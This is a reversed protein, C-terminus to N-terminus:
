DITVKPGSLDDFYFVDNRQSKPAFLITIQDVEANSVKTGNPITAFLFEVEEWENQKKTFTQYQSHVGDPYAIESAKGLQLEVMTGVPATSYIKMKIKPPVGEYTAYNEVEKLRGKLKLKINDYVEDKSRRYKICFPNSNFEELSPNTATSDLIGNFQSFWFFKETDGSFYNQQAKTMGVLIVILFTVTIKLNMMM